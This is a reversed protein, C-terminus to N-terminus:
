QCGSSRNDTCKKIIREVTRESVNMAEASKRVADARNIADGSQMLYKFKAAITEARERHKRNTSKAGESRDRRKKESGPAVLEYLALGWFKGVNAARVVLDDV